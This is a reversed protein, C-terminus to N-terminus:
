EHLHIKKIPKLKQQSEDSNRNQSLFLDSLLRLGKAIHKEVTSETIGMKQAVQKQSLGDVKRLSIVERCREPLSDMGNQLANLDSRAEAYREPSLEDSNAEFIDIDEIMDIAVIKARRVKDIM